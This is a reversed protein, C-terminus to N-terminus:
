LETPAWKGVGDFLNGFELYGGLFIEPLTEMPTVKSDHPMKRIMEPPMWHPSGVM